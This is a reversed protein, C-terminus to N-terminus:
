RWPLWGRRRRHFVKRVAFMFEREATAVARRAEERETDAAEDSPAGEEATIPSAAYLAAAQVANLAAVGTDTDPFLIFVRTGHMMAERSTERVARALDLSKKTLAESRPMVDEHAIRAADHLEAYDVEGGAAREIAAQKAAAIRKDIAEIEDEFFQHVDAQADESEQIGARFRVLTELLANCADIQRERFRESSDHRNASWTSGLTGVAGGVLAVVVTSADLNV